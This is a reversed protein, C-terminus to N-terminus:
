SKESEDIVKNFKNIYNPNISTFAVGIGEGEHTHLVTAQVHIPYADEESLKFRLEILSGKPIDHTTDLFMGGLSLNLCRCMGVGVVEVEKIFPIRKQNRRNQNDTEAM